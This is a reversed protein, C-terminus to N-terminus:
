FNREVLCSWALAKWESSLSRAEAIYARVRAGSFLPLAILLLLGIIAVVIAIEVLTFGRSGKMTRRIVNMAMGGTKQNGGGEGM